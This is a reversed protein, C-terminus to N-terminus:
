NSPHHGARGAGAPRRHTSGSNGSGSSHVDPQTDATARSGASTDVAAQPGHTWDSTRDAAVATGLSDTAQAASRRGTRGATQGMATAAALATASPPAATAAGGASAYAAIQRGFSRHGFSGDAGAMGGFAGNGGFGSVAGSLGGMAGFGGGTGSLCGMAGIGGGFGRAQAAASCAIAAVAGISALWFKTHM